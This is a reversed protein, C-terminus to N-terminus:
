FSDEMKIKEYDEKKNSFLFFVAWCPSFIALILFITYRVWIMTIMLSLISNLNQINM